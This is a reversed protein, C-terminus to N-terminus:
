QPLISKANIMVVALLMKLTIHLQPVVQHSEPAIAALDVDSACLADQNARKNLCPCFNM